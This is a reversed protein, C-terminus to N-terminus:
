TDNRVLTKGDQGVIGVKQIAARGWKKSIDNNFLLLGHGMKESDPTQATKVGKGSLREIFKWEKVVIDSISAPDEKMFQGDLWAAAATHLERWQKLSIDQSELPAFIKLSYPHLPGERRRKVKRANREENKKGRKAWEKSGPVLEQNTAEEEPKAPNAATGNKKATPSMTIRKRLYSRSIQLICLYNKYVLFFRIKQRM